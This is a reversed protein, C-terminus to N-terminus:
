ISNDWFIDSFLHTLFALIPLGKNSKLALLSTGQHTRNSKRSGEGGSHSVPIQRKVRLQVQGISNNINGVSVVEPQFTLTGSKQINPNLQPLSPFLLYPVLLLQCKALALVILVVGLPGNGWAMCRCQCIQPFQTPTCYIGKGWQTLQSWLVGNQNGKEKDWKEMGQSCNGEGDLDVIQVWIRSIPATELSVLVLTIISLDILM